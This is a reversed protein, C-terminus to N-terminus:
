PAGAALRLAAAVGSQLIDDSAEADVVVRSLQLAGLMVALIGVATRRREAGTLAPLLGELRTVFM